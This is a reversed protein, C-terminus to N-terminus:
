VAEPMGADHCEAHIISQLQKFMAGLEQRRLQAAAMIAPEGCVWMSPPGMGHSVRGEPGWLHM